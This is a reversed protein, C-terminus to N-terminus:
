VTKNARVDLYTHTCSFDVSQILSGRFAMYGKPTGCVPRLYGLKAFIVLYGTYINSHDSVRFRSIYVPLAQCGWQYKAGELVM